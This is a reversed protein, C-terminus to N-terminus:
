AESRNKVERLNCSVAARDVTIASSAIAAYLLRRIASPLFGPIASNDIKRRADGTLAGAITWLVLYFTAAVARRRHRRGRL